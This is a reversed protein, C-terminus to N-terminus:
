NYEIRVINTYFAAFRDGTVKSSVQSTIFNNRIKRKM